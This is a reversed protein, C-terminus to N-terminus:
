RRARIDFSTSHPTTPNSVMAHPPALPPSVGLPPAEFPPLGLVYVGPPCPPLAFPPALPPAFLPPVLPFGPAAPVDEPPTVIGPTASGRQGDRCGVPAHVWSWAPTEQWYSTEAPQRHPVLGALAPPAHLSTSGVQGLVLEPPVLEAGGADAPAPPLEAM